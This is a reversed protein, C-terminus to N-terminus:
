LVRPLCRITPAEARQRVDGKFALRITEWVDLTTEQAQTECMAALVELNKSTCRTKLPMRGMGKRLFTLHGRVERPSEDVTPVIV